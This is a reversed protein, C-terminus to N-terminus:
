HFFILFIKDSKSVEGNVWNEFSLLKRKTVQNKSLFRELKTGGNSFEVIRVAVIYSLIMDYRHLVAMNYLSNPHWPDINLAMRLHHLAEERDELLTALNNHALVYDPWLRNDFLM